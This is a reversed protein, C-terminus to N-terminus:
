MMKFVRQHYTQRGIADLYAIKEKEYFNTSDGREFFWLGDILIQLKHVDFLHQKESDTLSRMEAYHQAIQHAADFDFDQGFGWAFGDILNALDLLLYTYNADDFDLLAILEDGDFLVNSPDYDAHCIGKPLTHHLELANVQEQYWDAKAYGMESHLGVAKEQSLKLCLDPTYNWRSQWVTPRYGATISQLRAAIQVVQKLQSPSYSTVTQGDVFDYIMYAHDRFINVTDGQKNRHVKVCPFDQQQVYNIVDAEFRVSDVSRNDYYKLVVTSTNTQILYNSQVTGATISRVSHIEGLRYDVLMKRFDDESFDTNVTM